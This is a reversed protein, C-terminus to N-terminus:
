MIGLYTKWDDHIPSQLELEDKISLNPVKPKLLLKMGAEEPTRNKKKQNCPLCCSVINTYSKTGGRDRPIVHDLTLHRTDFQHYCYCCTYRDRKFVNLRNFNAKRPIWRVNYNLRLVAPINMKGSSWNIVYDWSSLVEVKNKSWLKIIKDETIFSIPVYNSNLLLAKM